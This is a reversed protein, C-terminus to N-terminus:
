GGRRMAGGQHPSASPYASPDPLPSRSWPGTVVRGRTPSQSQAPFGASTPQGQHASRCYFWVAMARRHWPAPPAEAPVPASKVTPFAAAHPSQSPTAALRCLAVAAPARRAPNTAAHRLPMAQIARAARHRPLATAVQKPPHSAPLPAPPAKRVVVKPDPM